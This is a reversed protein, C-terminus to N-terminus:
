SQRARMEERHRQTAAADIKGESTFKVGYDREAAARSVYGKIVDDCVEDLPRDLPSGYGGGGGTLTRVRTGAPLRHDRTRPLKVEGDPGLLYAENPAGGKGGELGWNPCQSRIMNNRVSAEKDLYAIVDIGLGGRFRGAGGSDERLALREFVVPHKTENIEIPLSHENGQQISCKPAPGDAHPRAGHGGPHPIHISFYKRADVDFGAIGTGRPDGRTAAPVRGKISDSVAKFITDIITPFGVSWEYMAAPRRANLLKGEPCVVTLPRFCGENSPLHPTTLCKFAIRAVNTAGGYYGSNLSGQVQDSIDSFDISMEDGRIDVRVKIPVPKSVNVGDNDLFAEATYSGDPMESVASRAAREAMNWTERVAALLTDRGFTTVLESLRRHGLKSAAVQANLDGMVLDPFRTNREILRLVDPNPRGKRYIRASPIQLGEQFIEQSSPSGSGVSGGGVDHLHARICSYALIKGDHFVPAFVVVNNLHQGQISPDNSAIIDGEEIEDEGIEDVTAKVVYGLDGRFAPHTYRSQMIIQGERDIFGVAFDRIEYNFYSYSSRWFSNTIEDAYAALSSSIVELTIPDISGSV